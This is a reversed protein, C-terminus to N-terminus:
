FQQFRTQAIIGLIYTILGRHNGALIGDSYSARAEVQFPFPPLFFFPPLFSLVLSHSYKNSVKFQVETM